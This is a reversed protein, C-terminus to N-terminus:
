IDVVGSPLGILLLPCPAAVGREIRANLQRWHTTSEGFKDACFTRGWAERFALGATTRREVARRQRRTPYLEFQELDEWSDIERTQAFQLVLNRIDNQLSLGRTIVVGASIAADGHLRKFNELDRDFFPDKNNWEIELALTGQDTRKVHDVEHSTSETTTGDVTKSVTFEHKPWGERYLENRLNRTISSQGGGGRILEEVPIRVRLLLETLEQLPGSFDQELIAKAHAVFKVDYAAAMLRRM